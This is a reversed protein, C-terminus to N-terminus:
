NQEMESGDETVANFFYEHIGFMEMEEDTFM